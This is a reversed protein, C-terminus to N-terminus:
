EILGLFVASSILSYVDNCSFKKKMKKVASIITQTSLRSTQAVKAISGNARYLEKIIEKETHSLAIESASKLEIARMYTASSVWQMHQEAHYMESSSLINRSEVYFMGRTGDSAITTIAWGGRHGLGYYAEMLKPSRMFVDDDFTGQWSIPCLSHACHRPIPGEEYDGKIITDYVEDEVANLVTIGSEKACDATPLDTRWGCFDFGFPRIAELSASMVSQISHASDLSTFLDLKWNNTNM